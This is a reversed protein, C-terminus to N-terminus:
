GGMPEDSNLPVGTDAHLRYEDLLDDLVNFSVTRNRAGWRFRDRVEKIWKAVEDDRQPQFSMTSYEGNRIKFLNAVREATVSSDLTSEVTVHVNGDERHDVDKVTAEGIIERNPGRLPVTEGIWHDFAGRKVIGFCEPTMVIHYSNM